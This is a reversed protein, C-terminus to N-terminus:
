TTGPRPESLTARRYGPWHRHSGPAFDGFFLEPPLSLSELRPDLELVRENAAVAPGPRHEEHHVIAVLAYGAAAEEPKKSEALRLAVALAEKHRSQSYLIAALRQLARADDPQRELIEQFAAVALDRYNGRSLGMARTHLQDLSLNNRRRALEYYPEAEASYNLESLCLAALRAAEPDTPISLWNTM